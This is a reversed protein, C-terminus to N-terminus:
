DSRRYDSYTTETDVNYTKILGVRMSVRYWMRRPLWVGEDLRTRTLSVQSARHIRVLIWGFTVTDTLEADVRVWNYDSKDIWLKGKVATFLKSHRDVPQYGPRPEALIVFCARSDVIEEGALQFLFADPIERIAKRYRDRRRIFGNRRATREATSEKRRAEAVDSIEAEHRRQEEAAIRRGNVELLLRYPTGDIMRVDHTKSETLRFRGQSDLDSSRIREIFNYGLALEADKGEDAAVSRRVIERPDAEAGLAVGLAVTATVLRRLARGM